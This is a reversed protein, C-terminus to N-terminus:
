SVLSLDISFGSFVLVLSHHEPLTATGTESTAGAM